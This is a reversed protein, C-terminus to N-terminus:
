RFIFFQFGLTVTGLLLGMRGTVIRWRPRDFWVLIAWAAIILSASILYLTLSRDIM